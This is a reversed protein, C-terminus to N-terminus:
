PESPNAPVGGAYAREVEIRQTGAANAQIRRVPETTRDSGERGNTGESTVDAMPPANPETGGGGGGGEGGGRRRMRRVLRLLVAAAFLGVTAYTIASAIAGYVTSRVLIRAQSASLRKGEPTLVQVYLPFTGAADSRVDPELQVKQGPRVTTPVRSASQLRTRDNSTLSIVVTMPSDGVNQVTLPVKGHRSTLTVKPSAVIQVSNEIAQIRGDVEESLHVAGARDARWWVSLATMLTNVMPRVVSDRGDVTGESQSLACAGPPNSVTETRTNVVGCLVPDLQNAEQRLHEVADVYSTPIEQAQAWAPYTFTRASGATETTTTEAAGAATGSASVAGSPLPTATVFPATRAPAFDGTALQGLVWRAWDAPPNWLRPLALVVMRGDSPSEATIMALEAEVDGLDQQLGPQGAAPEGSADAQPSAVLTALASDAALVRVPGNDTQQVTLATPTVKPNRATAPLLRDDVIATANGVDGSGHYVGALFNLTAKDALEDGPLSVPLNGTPQRHLWDAFVTRGTNVADLADNGQGARLLATVDADGWPLPFVTNGQAYTRLANLFREADASAPRRQRGTASAFIYGGPQTMIELARVLTPDVALAVPSTPSLAGLINYLRGGPRIEGALRDDTLLGDSRVHPQDSLPVVTVLASPAPKTTTPSWVLFTYAAGVETTGDLAAVKMPYITLGPRTVLANLSQDVNFGGAASVPVPDGLSHRYNVATPAMRLEALEARGGTLRDGISVQIKLGTAPTTGGVVGMLRLDVGPAAVGSFADITVQTTAATSATSATRVATATPIGTSLATSLGTSATSSARAPLTPVVVMAAALAVAAARTATRGALRKDRPSV